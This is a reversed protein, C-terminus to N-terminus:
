LRHHELTPLMQRTQRVNETDIQATVFGDGDQCEAVVMGWPDVILGHGYSYREGYHHGWQAPALIYGQTEIARARVLVHWHDKGTYSTFAAPIAIIEAGRVVLDHYLEPFRIDYCVSLGLMGAKSRAVVVETGPAVTASEQIPKGQPLDADFLHVKRYTAQISGDEGMFVCTNYVKSTDELNREWFGGLVLETGTERALRAFREIIPGGRPLPEAIQLKHQDPGLYAFGEPLLILEAGAHAARKILGEASTLNHEVNPTSNMQVVAVKTQTM